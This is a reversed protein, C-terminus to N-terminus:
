PLSPTPIGSPRDIGGPLEFLSGGSPLGGYSREEVIRYLSFIYRVDALEGLLARERRGFRLFFATSSEGDLQVRGVGEAHYRQLERLRYVTEEFLPLISRMTVIAPGVATRIRMDVGLGGDAVVANALLDRYVALSRYAEAFRPELQNFRTTYARVFTSAGSRFIEERLATWRDYYADLEEVAVAAVAPEEGGVAEVVTGAPASIPGGAGATVEVEGERVGLLAAGDPSTLVDFQTGRVGLVVSRTEVSFRRQRQISEIAIEATGTLLQVRTELGADTAFVEVYYAADERIRVRGATGGILEIEAYGDAGTQILDQEQLETGIWAETAGELVGRRAVLVEGDLFAIRGITEQATVSVPLLLALALILRAQPARRTRVARRESGRAARM